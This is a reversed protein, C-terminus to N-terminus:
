LILTSYDVRKEGAISFTVLYFPLRKENFSATPPIAIHYRAPHGSLINLDSQELSLVFNIVSFLQNHFM